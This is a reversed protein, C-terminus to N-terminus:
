EENHVCRVEDLRPSTTRAQMIARSAVLLRYVKCFALCMSIIIYQLLYYIIIIINNNYYYITTFLLYYIIFLDYHIVFDTRVFATVVALSTM